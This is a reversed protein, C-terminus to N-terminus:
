SGSPPAADCPGTDGAVKACGSMLTPLSSMTERWTVAPKEYPAKPRPENEVQGPVAPENV